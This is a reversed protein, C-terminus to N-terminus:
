KSTQGMQNAGSSKLNEIPNTFFKTFSILLGAEVVQEDSRSCNFLNIYIFTSICVNDLSKFLFKYHDHTQPLLRPVTGAKKTFKGATYIIVCIKINESPTLTINM